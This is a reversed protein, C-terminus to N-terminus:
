YDRAQLRIREFSLLVYGEEIGYQGGPFVDTVRVIEPPTDEFIFVEGDEDEDTRRLLLIDGEQYGRDNFRVEARKVGESILDFSDSNCKLDIVKM